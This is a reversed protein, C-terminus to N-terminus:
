RTHRAQRAAKRAAAAAQQAQARQRRRPKEVEVEIWASVALDLEEQTSFPGLVQETVGYRATAGTWGGEPLWVSLVAALYPTDAAGVLDGSTLRFGACGTTLRGIALGKGVETTCIDWAELGRMTLLIELSARTLTAAPAPPAVFSPDVTHVSVAPGPRPEGEVFLIEDSGSGGSLPAQTM